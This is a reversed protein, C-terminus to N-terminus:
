CMFPDVLDLECVHEIYSFDRVCTDKTFHFRASISAKKLLQLKKRQEALYDESGQCVKLTLSELLRVNLVFLTIFNVQSMVGRYKEFVIEKLCIDLTNSLNKRKRRWL